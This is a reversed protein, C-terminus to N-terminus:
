RDPWEIPRGPQAMWALVRVAWPPMPAASPSEPDAVWRRVTQPSVCLLRAFGVQSLSLEDLTSRLAAPTM